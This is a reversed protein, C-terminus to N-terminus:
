DFKLSHESGEQNCCNGSLGRVGGSQRDFEHFFTNFTYFHAVTGPAKTMTGTNETSLPAM